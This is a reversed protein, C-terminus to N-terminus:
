QKLEEEVALLSEYAKYRPHSPDSIGKEQLVGEAVKRMDTVLDLYVNPDTKESDMGIHLIEPIFGPWAISYVNGCFAGSAYTPTHIKNSLIVIVMQTEPDIMVVPGTFGQHGFMKSDSTAGFYYDRAHDGERWWGLAFGPADIDSLSTFLDLTDQSFFRHEGYGGTLMISALVALDSANSFLGAHGSIGNMSYWAMEDHVEGEITERRIGPFDIVGDRTNGNLETAACDDKEFGNELPNYTIHKLQMPDFFNEKLYTDLDKGSVEEVILGLIMYDVDSYLSRSRPEYQLPTQCIAEITNEKTEPSHESGAYLINYGDDLYEQSPADVHINFYRPSPPFGAQHKLLDEISISAKWDKMVDIGPDVGFDYVFDMTDEYFRDGLYDSVKDSLSIKEESILKQIAYNASFMKTVSALDFLTENNVPVPDSKRSGDKEYSNLYGWSKSYILKNHRIIALQAGTFGYEVDSSIIDSILEFTEEHFGEEILSGEIVEPYPIYVSVTGNEVCSVQLSNIGNVSVESFDIQFIGKGSSTDAKNSNIFLDFSDADSEIYLEGQDSYYEFGVVSNMALTDDIKGLRDPFTVQKQWEKSPIHDTETVHIQKAEQIEEIDQMEEGEEQKCAFLTFSILLIMILKLVNKM